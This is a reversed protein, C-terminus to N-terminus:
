EPQLQKLYNMLNDKSLLFIKNLYERDPDMEDTFPSRDELDKEIRKLDDRTIPSKEGM